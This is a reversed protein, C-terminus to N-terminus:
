GSGAAWSEHTKPIELSPILLTKLVEFHQKKITQLYTLIITCHNKHRTTKFMQSDRPQKIYICILMCMTHTSLITTYIFDIPLGEM